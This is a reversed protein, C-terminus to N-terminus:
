TDLFRCRWTRLSPISGLHSLKDMLVVGRSGTGVDSPIPNCEMALEQAVQEVQEVAVQELRTCLQLCLTKDQLLSCIRRPAISGLHCWRDMRVLYM